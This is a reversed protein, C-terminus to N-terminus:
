LFIYLLNLVVAYVVNRVWLMDVRKKTWTLDLHRVHFYINPPKLGSWIQQNIKSCSGMTGHEHFESSLKVALLEFNLFLYFLIFVFSYVSSIAKPSATHLIFWAKWLFLKTNRKIFSFILKVKPKMGFNQM